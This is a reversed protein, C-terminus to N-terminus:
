LAKKKVPDTQNRLGYCGKFGIGRASHERDFRPLDFIARGRGRCIM